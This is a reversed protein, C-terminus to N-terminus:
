IGSPQGSLSGSQGDRKKVYGRLHMVTEVPSSNTVSGSNSRSRVCTLTRGFSSLTPLVRFRQFSTDEKSARRLRRALSDIFHRKGHEYASVGASLASRPCFLVETFEIGNADCIRLCRLSPVPPQAGGFSPKPKLPPRPFSRPCKAEGM